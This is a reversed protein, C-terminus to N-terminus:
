QVSHKVFYPKYHQLRESIMATVGDGTITAGSIADVANDNKDNGGAYGKQVNVGVIEGSQDQIKEGEFREKFWGQTIEAGLGPTEGAHDLSIGKVTNLDEELSIYGWIANWLGAGRLPVVYYKTGDVNAVFIPFRQASVPKKLEKNLDVDFAKTTEDIEGEATLSYQETIYQNFKAEAGDRDVDVGITALINQMKEKRANDDQRPKLSTATFALATAVVVVLLLLLSLHIHM